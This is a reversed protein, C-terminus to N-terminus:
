SLIESVNLGKVTPTDITDGPRYIHIQAYGEPGPQTHVEITQEPLAVLWCGPIGAAAYLPLKVQRDKEISSDGVEIILLVDAPHPHADKYRREKMRALLVDPEPESREPITLPNLTRTVAKGHFHLIFWESLRDVCDAHPSKIPTMKIIEGHLLEVRDEETLIGADALRHYEEVTFLRRPLEIAPQKTM